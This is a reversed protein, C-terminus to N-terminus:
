NSVENCTLGIVKEALSSFVKNFKEKNSSSLSFAKGGLGLQEPTLAFIPTRHEQSKTILAGFDAIMALRFNNSEIGQAEYLQDPLMMNNEHLIPVLRTSVAENIADIWKQFAKNAVEIGLMTDKKYNQVVTGLFRVTVEPFPYYAERLIQLSSAKVAWDYWKPIIGLLSDIAMLSFLDPYTPIILFNSTIVLNQNIAGLSPSLDILIYDVNFIDATKQM